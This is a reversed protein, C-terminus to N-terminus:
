QRHKRRDAAVPRRALSLGAAFFLSGAALSDMANARRSEAVDRNAWWEASDWAAMVGDVMEPDAPAETDIEVVRSRGLAPLDVHERFDQAPLQPQRVNDALVEPKVASVAGQDKPGSDAVANESNGLSDPVERNMPLVYGAALVSLEVGPAEVAVVTFTVPSSWVSAEGMDSIARVWVRYSGAPLANTVTYSAVSLDQRYVIKTTPVDLRNIWLEYTEAGSIGSWLFTPTSSVQGSNAPSLIRPRGGVTFQSATSWPSETGDAAIARVWVVYTGDALDTQPTLSTATVFKDQLITTPAEGATRRSLWVHYSEAGEVADWRIEPTRDFTAGQPSVNVPASLVTFTVPSSWYGPLGDPSFARSWARYTGGPLDTAASAFSTTQLDTEHIVMSEGTTLNNVWLEYRATDVVTTWSIEPFTTSASTSQNTPSTMVPRTRIRFDKGASWVGPLELDDYARVWYRYIGVGIQQEPILTPYGAIDVGDVYWESSADTASSTEIRLAFNDHLAGAPLSVAARHFVDEASGAVTLRQLVVWAGSANRYSVILDQTPLFTGPNLVDEVAADHQYRFRLEAGVEASLDMSASDMRSSGGPVDSLHAALGMGNVASNDVTVNTSAAWREVALSGSEFDEMFLSPQAPINDLRYFQVINRSVDNMWLDYRTAGEIPKWSLTPTSDETDRSPGSLVPPEHDAVNLSLEGNRFGAAAATIIVNQLRDLIDDNVADILFTASDEGVPIIVQAPVSAETLDSSSLDVVIPSTHDAASVRVTATAAGAGANEPITQSGAPVTVSLFEADEVTVQLTGSNVVPNLTNSDSATITVTQPGDLFNDELITAVFSTSIAGQPILFTAPVTLETVDDSTLTILQPVTLNNADVRAVTIIITGQDEPVSPTLTSLVLRPEQDLVTIVPSVEDLYGAASATFTVSQDGDFELDDVADITFVVSSEGAPITVSAPVSLETTDSSLLSVILPSTTNIDSRTLTVQIAAPGAGESVSTRDLTLTLVEADTVDVSDSVTFFGPVDTSVPSITVTKTGDLVADDIVNLPIFVESQNAPITITTEVVAEQIDSSSLTVQAASLGITAIELSWNLLTGTDLRSDDIVELTWQGSPNEGNFTALFQEPIFRGTYPAAGDVIRQGAQDDLITNTIQSGNSSLDTFLEVRTGSPSILYVDLDPIATHTISLTVNVDTIRSVQDGIQIHTSTVNNDLIPQPGAFTGSSSSVFDLPGDIDTRSIRVGDVVTGQNEPVSDPIVEVSIAEYDSVVADVSGSIYEPASVDITVLQDGDRLNDDIVEASFTVSQQGVPLIVTDPVRIATTDSSTLSVVVDGTARSPHRGFSVFTTAGANELTVFSSIDGSLLKSQSGQIVQGNQDSVLVEQGVNVEIDAISSLGSDVMLVTVGSNDFVILNGLSDGAYIGSDDGVAISTVEQDLTVGGVRLLTDPDHISIETGSDQLGYVLGDLGITVDRFKLDAATVGPIDGGALDGFFVVETTLPNIGPTVPDADIPIGQRTYIDIQNANRALYIVDNRVVGGIAVDSMTTIGPLFQYPQSTLFSSVVRGDVPSLEYVLNNSFDTAVLRNASPFASIYWSFSNANVNDISLVGGVPLRTVPDYVEIEAGAVVNGTNDLIYLLGNMYTLGDLITNQIVGLSHTELLAGTDADLKLIEEFGSPGTDVLAWLFQGDYALGNARYRFFSNLPNIPLALTNILEGTIPNFEYVTSSFSSAMAFLRSGVSTDGFRDIQGTVVNIRTMGHSDGGFLETDTLFVYDGISALGGVANDTPDASLGSIGTFHQWSDTSPNYLSLNASATGNYVAVRGDNMVILDHVDEGVPRVGGPWPVPVSRVLTGNPSYEELLNNNTVWHNPADVDTNSRTITVQVTGANEAVPNPNVDVSVSEYDTVSVVAENNLVGAVYAQISLQQTGDLLTDDVVTVDFTVSRRNAPITVQAPVTIETPDTSVLDIVLPASSPQGVPRSIRGAAVHVGSNEAFTTPAVSVTVPNSDVGQVTLTYEGLNGYEGRNSVQIYYNGAALTATISATLSANANGLSFPIDSTAVVNGFVDILTLVPDLNSGPNTSGTLAGTTQTVDLGTVTFTATTALTQLFFTDVDDNTEIIGTIVEDGPGVNLTSATGLTNGYDDLRFQIGNASSTIEALDDQFAGITQDGSANVWVDRLSGIPNGLIPGVEATGPDLPNAVIGSPNYLPHDGLNLMRAVASSVVRAMDKPDTGQFAIATNPLAPDTFAGRFAQFDATGGFEAGTGGIDVRMGVGDNTGSAGPNVTTVNVNFPRFDEAVRAWIETIQAVEVADFTNADSNTDFAPVSINGTQGDTRAAVFTPDSIDDGAFALYISVPASPLSNLAVPNVRAPLTDVGDLTVTYAGLNGYEGRNSVQIFYDGDPLTLTLSERYYTAGGVTDNQGVVNGNADLVTLVPDLNSGATQANFPAATLNLGTVGIIATTASTSFAFVDVDNNTEIVGTVTEIGPAIPIVTASSASVSNGHDDQRFNVNPNGDLLTLDNQNTGVTPGDANFWIDRISNASNGLIPGTNADGALLSDDPNEHLQLGMATAVGRSIGAAVNKQFQGPLGAFETQIVFLTQSLSPTSFSNALANVAPPPSTARNATAWSGDGGVSVLLEFNNRIAPPEVTTVNVNFPRFDEAVRAWIEEIWQRETASFNATDADTSFAPTIIDGIVGDKRQTTWSADAETHGDFDLYITVPAGPLSSFPDPNTLLLRPELSELSVARPANERRSKRVSARSRRFTSLLSQLVTM